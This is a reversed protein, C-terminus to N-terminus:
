DADIHAREFSERGFATGSIQAVGCRKISGHRSNRADKVDGGVVPQPRAVRSLNVFGVHVARPIQELGRPARAGLFEDVGARDCRNRHRAM